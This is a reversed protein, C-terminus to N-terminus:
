GFIHPYNRFSATAPQTLIATGVFVAVILIGILGFRILKAAALNLEHYFKPNLM